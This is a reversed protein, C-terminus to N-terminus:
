LALLAGAAVLGVMGYQAKNAAGEYTSVGAVTTNAAASSAAPCNTAEAGCSTITEVTTSGITETVVDALVLTALLSSVFLFQM